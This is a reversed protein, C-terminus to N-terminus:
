YEREGLLLSGVRIYTAGEPIALKYDGSMGMSLQTIEPYKIQLAKQLQQLERFVLITADKDDNVSGMTMLGIIKVNKFELSSEAVESLKDKSFGRKQQEGTLNVQLFVKVQKGDEGAIREIRDLLKLSDVSHIFTAYKLAHRVKNSQLPGILHWTLDDPLMEAKENMEQVRNEAFQREGLEYLAQLKELPQRKTVPLLNVEDASRGCKGCEGAISSQLTSLNEALFEFAMTYECYFNLKGHINIMM